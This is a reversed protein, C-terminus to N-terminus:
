SWFGTDFYDDGDEPSWNPALTRLPSTALRFERKARKHEANKDENRTAPIFDDKHVERMTHTSRITVGTPTQKKRGM